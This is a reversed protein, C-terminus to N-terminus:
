DSAEWLPTGPERGPRALPIQPPCLPTVHEGFNQFLTSGVSKPVLFLSIHIQLCFSCFVKWRKRSWFTKWVASIAYLVVVNNGIRVATVILRVLKQSAVSVGRGQLHLCYTGGFRRHLEIPSCSTAKWLATGKLEKVRTVCLLLGQGVKGTWNGRSRWAGRLGGTKM